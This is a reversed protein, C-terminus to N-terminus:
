FYKINQLVTGYTFYYIQNTSQFTEYKKGSQM